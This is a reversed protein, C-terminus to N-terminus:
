NVSSYHEATRFLIEVPSRLGRRSLFARRFESFEDDFSGAFHLAHLNDLYACWGAPTKLRPYHHLRLLYGDFHTQFERELGAQIELYGAGGHGLFAVGQLLFYELLAHAASREYFLPRGIRLVTGVLELPQLVHDFPFFYWKALRGSLLRSLASPTRVPWEAPVPPVLFSLAYHSIWDASELCMALEGLQLGLTLGQLKAVSLALTTESLMGHLDPFLETHAFIYMQSLSREEGDARQLFWVQRARTETSGILQEATECLKGGVRSGAKKMWRRASDLSFGRGAPTAALDLSGEAAVSSLNQRLWNRQDLMRPLDHFDQNEEPRPPGVHEAVGAYQRALFWEAATPREKLEVLLENLLYAFERLVLAMSDPSPEEVLIKSALRLSVSQRNISSAFQRAISEELILAADLLATDFVSPLEEQDLHLGSAFDIIADRITQLGSM